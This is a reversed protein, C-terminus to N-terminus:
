RASATIKAFLARAEQTKLLFFIGGALKDIHEKGEQPLGYYCGQTFDWDEMRAVPVDAMFLDYSEWAEAISEGALQKFSMRPNRHNSGSTRDLLIEIYVEQLLPPNDTARTRVFDERHLGCVFV